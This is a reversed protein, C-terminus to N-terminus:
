ISLNFYLTLFQLSVKDKMLGGSKFLGTNELALLVREQLM